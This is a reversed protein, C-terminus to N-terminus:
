SFCDTVLSHVGWRRNGCRNIYEVLVGKHVETVLLCVIKLMLRGLLLLLGQCDCVRYLWLWDSFLFFFLLQLIVEDLLLCCHVFWLLLSLARFLLISRSTFFARCACAFSLLRASRMVCQLEIPFFQRSHTGQLFQRRGLRVM